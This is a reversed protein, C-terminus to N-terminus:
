INWKMKELRFRGYFGNNRPRFRGIGIYQGAAEVHQRFVDETITEDLILWVVEGGWERILPYQKWVRKGGGRRGDAPLFLRESELTDRTIPLTLNDEVMVGAEIHKTYTAKGRGKVPMSIFKAAESLANKFAMQPIFIHGEGDVHAHEM